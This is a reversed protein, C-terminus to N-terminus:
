NPDRGGLLCVLLCHHAIPSFCYADRGDFFRTTLFDIQTAEALTIQLHYPLLVWEHVVRNRRNVLCSDSELRYVVHLSDRGLWTGDDGSLCSNWRFTMRAQQHFMEKIIFPGTSKANSLLARLSRSQPPLTKPLSCCGSYYHTQYLPSILQANSHM